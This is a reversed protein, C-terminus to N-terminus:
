GHTPPQVLVPVPSRHVIRAAESGLVARALGARARTTAVVLDTPVADLYQGILVHAYAFGWLVRTDVALGNLEPRAAVDRLYADPDQDGQRPVLVPDAATVLSVRWGLRRAWAAALPVVQEALANGDLCVALHGSAAVGDDTTVRPGVAVLAAHDRAVVSAFTSGVVSASRSRGHTALCVLCPQLQRATAVIAAAPDYQDAMHATLGGARLKDLYNEYWWLEDRPVASVVVHLAAGLQTALRRGPALAREATDSGDLPVLVSTYGADTPPVGAPAVTAQRTRAMTM